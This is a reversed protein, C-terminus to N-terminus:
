FNPGNFDSAAINTVRGYQRIQEVLYRGILFNPQHGRVPCIVRAFAM